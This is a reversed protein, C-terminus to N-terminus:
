LEFVTLWDSRTVRYGLRDLLRLVAPIHAAGFLVAASSAATEFRSM